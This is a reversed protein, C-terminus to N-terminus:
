HIRLDRYIPHRRKGFPSSIRANQFSMPKRHLSKKMAYGKESYYDVAGKNDKFRYLSVKQNKLQMGAYLINGTSAIKGEKTIQNEFVIEFKDGKRVDRRFDISYSFIKIFENVVKQPVGQRNMSQSLSGKISGTAHNVESILEEKESRLKYKGESSIDLIYRQAHSQEMVISSVRTIKGLANDYIGKMLIKQGIRINKPDYEKKFANYIAHSEDYGLGFKTLISIFTQGKEVTILKEINEEREYTSVMNFLSKINGIHEAPYLNDTEEINDSITNELLLYDVRDNISISANVNNNNALSLIFAFTIAVAYGLTAVRYKHKPKININLNLAM